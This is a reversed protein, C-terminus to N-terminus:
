DDLDRPVHGRLWKPSFIWISASCGFRSSKERRSPIIRHRLTKEGRELEFQNIRAVPTGSGLGAALDEFIDLHEVIPLPSMRGEAVQTGILEFKAM